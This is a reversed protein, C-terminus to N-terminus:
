NEVCNEFGKKLKYVFKRIEDNEAEIIGFKCINKTRSLCNEFKKGM